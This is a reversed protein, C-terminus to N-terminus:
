LTRIGIVTSEKEMTQEMADLEERNDVVFYGIGQEMAFAIDWDTKNNSHFYAKEIPYGAKLATCIEGSSVVDIGM